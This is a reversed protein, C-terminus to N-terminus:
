HETSMSFVTPYRADVIRILRRQSRLDLAQGVAFAEGFAGALHELKQLLAKRGQFSDRGQADCDLQALQFFRAWRFRGPRKSGTEIQQVIPSGSCGAPDAAVIEFSL